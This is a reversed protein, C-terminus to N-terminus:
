TWRYSSQVSAYLCSELAPATRTTSRDAAKGSPVTNFTMQAASGSRISARAGSIGKM